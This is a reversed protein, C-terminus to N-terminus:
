MEGSPIGTGRDTTAPTYAHETVGDIHLAGIRYFQQLQQVVMERVADRRDEGGPLAAIVHEVIEGRSKPSRLAKAIRAALPALPETEITRLTRYLLTAAPSEHCRVHEPSPRRPLLIRITYVHVPPISHIADGVSLCLIQSVAQFPGLTASFGM